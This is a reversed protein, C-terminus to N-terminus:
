VAKDFEVQGHKLLQETPSLVQYNPFWYIAGVETLLGQEDRSSEDSLIPASTLAGIEEPRIWEWGNSLHDELMDYLTSDTSISDGADLRSRLEHRGAPTLTLRLKNRVKEIVVFGGM